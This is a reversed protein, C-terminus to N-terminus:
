KEPATATRTKVQAEVAKQLRNYLREGPSGIRSRPVFGPFIDRVYRLVLHMAETPNGGTRALFDSALQRSTPLVAHLADRLTDKSELAARALVQAQPHNFPHPHM